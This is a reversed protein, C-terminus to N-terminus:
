RKLERRTKWQKLHHFIFLYRTFIFHECKAKTNGLDRVASQVPPYPTPYPLSNVPRTWKQVGTGSSIGASRTHRRSPGMLWSFLALYSFSGRDYLHFWECDNIETVYEKKEKEIAVTLRSLLSRISESESKAPPYSTSPSPPFIGPPPNSSASSGEFDLRTGM